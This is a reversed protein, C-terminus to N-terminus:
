TIPQVYANTGSSDLPIKESRDAAHRRRKLAVIGRRRAAPASCAVLRNRSQRRARQQKPMQGCGNLMQGRESPTQAYASLM